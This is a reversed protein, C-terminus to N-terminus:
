RTRSSTGPTVVPRKFPREGPLRFATDYLETMEAETLVEGAMIKKRNATYAAQIRAARKEAKEKVKREEARITSKLKNATARTREYDRQDRALNDYRELRERESMRRHGSSDSYTRTSAEQRRRIKNRITRELRQLDRVVERVRDMYKGKVAEYGKDKLEEAADLYAKGLARNAALAKKQEDTLGAQEEEKAEAEERAQSKQTAVTTANDIAVSEIKERPVARIGAASEFMVSVIKGELSAESRVELADKGDRPTKIAVIEDRPYISQVEGVLITVLQVTGRMEEGTRLKLIDARAWAGGLLLCSALIALRRM